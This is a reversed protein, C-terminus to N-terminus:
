FHGHLIAPDAARSCPMLIVTTPALIAYQEPAQGADHDGDIGRGQLITAELNDPSRVLQAPDFVHQAAVLDARVDLAHFLAAFTQIPYISFHIKATCPEEVAVHQM